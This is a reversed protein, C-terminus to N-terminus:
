LRAPASNASEVGPRHSFAKPNGARGLWLEPGAPLGSAAAGCPRSPVKQARLPPGPPQRSSPVCRPPAPGAGAAAGSPEASAASGGAVRLLPSLAGPRGRPRWASCVLSAASVARRRPRSEPARVGAAPRTPGRPCAAPHPPGPCAGELRLLDTLGCTLSLGPCRRPATGHNRCLAAGPATTPAPLCDRGRRPAATPKSRPARRVGRSQAPRQPTGRTREERLRRNKLLSDGGPPRARGKPAQTHTQPSTSSSGCSGPYVRCSGSWRGTNPVSPGPGM